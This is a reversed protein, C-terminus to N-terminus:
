AASREKAFLKLIKRGRYDFIRKLQRKVILWHTVTGLPGFPLGYRIHDRMLTGGPAEEFSHRHRWYKYPGRVQTDVFGHPPNYEEILTEWRLPLGFWRIEHVIKMGPGMPRAEPTLDRFGVSKPTIRALNAPDCFFEFVEEIPARIFVERRLDYM